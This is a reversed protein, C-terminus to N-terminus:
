RLPIIEPLWGTLAHVVTFDGFESAKNGGAYSYSNILFSALYMANFTTSLRPITWVVDYDCDYSLFSVGCMGMHLSSLRCTSQVASDHTRKDYM